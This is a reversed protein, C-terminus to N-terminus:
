SLESNALLYVTDKVQRSINMLHFPLYSMEVVVISIYRNIQHWGTSGFEDNWWKNFDDLTGFTCLLRYECNKAQHM